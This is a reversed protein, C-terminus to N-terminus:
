INAWPDDEDENENTIVPKSGYAQNFNTALQASVPKNLVQGYNNGPPVQPYSNQSKLGFDSVEKKEYKVSENKMEGKNKAEVESVEGWPDFEQEDKGSKNNFGKNEIIPKDNRVVEVHGASFNKDFAQEGKWPDSDNKDAQGWPDSPTEINQPKELKAAEGWPDSECDEANSANPVIDPVVPNSQQYSGRGYNPRDSGRSYGGQWDTGRGYGGQSDPDGRGYGGQSDSDGRRYGGQFDNGRRYGGRGFGRPRDNKRGFDSDWSQNQYPNDSSKQEEKGWDNQEEGWAGFNSKIEGGRGRSSYGSQGDNYSGRQGRYSGRNNENNYGGRRSNNYPRSRDGFSGRNNFDDREGRNYSQNYSNGFYENPSKNFDNGYGKDYDGQRDNYGGGRNGYRSYENSGRSSRYNEFNRNSYDNAPKGFDNQPKSFDYQDKNDYDYKPYANNPQTKQFSSGPDDWSRDSTNKDYAGRGRNSGYGGRGFDGGRNSYDNYGGSYGNNGYGRGRSGRYSNEEYGQSESGWGTNNVGMAGGRGRANASPRSYCDPTIDNNGNALKVFWEPVKQHSEVLLDLLDKHVANPYDEVLAIAMGTNGIRGTRGIRHVYNDIHTPLDFVIVYAVDPIDLGRSAVDTAILINIAKIKFDHLAKEREFQVRDGHICSCRIGQRTLFFSLDNASTKKEVFILIQGQLDPILSLLFDQKEMSKVLHLQQIINETTSGVRGVTLYVFDRLYKHAIQQIETPFTASCMITERDVKKIATLIKIIQPEFGMDLMRDAEDLILYRTLYLNIIGKEIFDILRGPTAILIDAGKALNSQQQTISAGGYVVVVKIGTLNTFKLAEEYIQVSLERTPALMLALPRADSREVPPPPGDNLMKAVLPYLYAATKGSGTQACAMLDRRLLSVPIAYQQVPTPKRYGFLKLNKLLAPHVECDSFEHMQPIEKDSISIPIDFYKEFNIGNMHTEQFLKKVINTVEQDIYGNRGDRFSWDTCGKERSGSNWEM